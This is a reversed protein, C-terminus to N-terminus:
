ESVETRFPVHRAIHCFGGKGVLDPASGFAGIEAGILEVPPPPKHFFPRVMNPSSLGQCLVSHPETSLGLAIQWPPIPRVLDPAGKRHRSSNRPDFLYGRCKADASAGNMAPVFGAVKRLGM